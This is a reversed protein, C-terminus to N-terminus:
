PTDVKVKKTTKKKSLIYYMNMVRKIENYPKHDVSSHSLILLLILPSPTQPNPDGFLRTIITKNNM